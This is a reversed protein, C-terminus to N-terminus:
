IVGNPGEVLPTTGDEGRVVADAGHEILLRAVDVYGRKSAQYLPTTGDESRAVV